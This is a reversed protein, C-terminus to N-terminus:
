SITVYGQMYKANKGSPVFRLCGCPAVDQGRDVKIKGSVTVKGKGPIYIPVAACYEGEFDEPFESVRAVSRLVGDPCLVKIPLVVRHFPMEYHWYTGYGFKNIHSVM